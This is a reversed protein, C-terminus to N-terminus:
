NPALESPGVYIYDITIKGNKVNAFNIRFTEIQNLSKVGSDTLPINLVLFRGNASDYTYSKANSKWAGAATGRNTACFSIWLSDARTCGDLKFRIQAVDAQAPNYNLGYALTPDTTNNTAPMIFPSGKSTVDFTMYGSSKNIKLNKSYGTYYMWYKLHYDFSNWRYAGQKYHNRAETTDTFDFIMGGGLKIDGLVFPHDSIDYRGNAEYCVTYYKLGADKTATVHDIKASTDDRTTSSTGCDASKSVSLFKRFETTNAKCNFDGTCIVTDAYTRKMQNVFAALEQAQALRESAKNSGPTWHTSIMVFQKGSSKVTFVGWVICHGNSRAEYPKVGHDSLTLLDKRYLITNLAKGVNPVYNYYSYGAADSETLWAWKSTDLNSFATYWTPSVEQAGIITPANERMMTKLKVVRTSTPAPAAGDSSWSAFEARLNASMVRIDSGTAQTGAVAKVETAPFVALLLVLVLFLSLIRKSM